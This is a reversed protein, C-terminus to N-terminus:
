GGRRESLFDAPTRIPIGRFEKLDTLDPDGSVILDAVGEVACELVRNDDPDSTIRDIQLSPVVVEAISLIENLIIQTVKPPYRFKPGELVGKLEELLIESTVLKVVGSIALRLVKRPKGGFVLASVLVNTDLVVRRM